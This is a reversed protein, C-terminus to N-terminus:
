KEEENLSEIIVQEAEELTYNCIPCHNRFTWVHCLPCSHGQKRKVYPNQMSQM